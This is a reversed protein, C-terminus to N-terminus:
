NNFEQKFTSFFVEKEKAVPKFGIIEENSIFSIENLVNSLDIRINIIPLNM